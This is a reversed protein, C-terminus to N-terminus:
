TDVIYLFNELIGRVTDNMESLLLGGVIWYSDRLELLETDTESIM